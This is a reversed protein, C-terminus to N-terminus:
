RAAGGPEPPGAPGWSERGDGTIPHSPGLLVHEGVVTALVSKTRALVERVRSRRLQAGYPYRGPPHAPRTPARAPPTSPGALHAFADGPV